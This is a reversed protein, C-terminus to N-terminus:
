RPVVGHGALLAAVSVCALALFVAAVALGVAIRARGAEGILLLLLAGSLTAVVLLQASAGAQGNQRAIVVAM